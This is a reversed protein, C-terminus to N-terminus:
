GEGRRSRSMKEKFYWTESGSSTERPILVGRTARETRRRDTAPEHGDSAALGEEVARDKEREGEGRGDRGRGAGDGDLRIRCSEERRGRRNGAAGITVDSDASGGDVEAGGGGFPEREGGSDVGLTARHSYQVENRVKLMTTTPPRVRSVSDPKLM